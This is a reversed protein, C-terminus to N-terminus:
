PDQGEGAKRPPTAAKLKESAPHLVYIGRLLHEVIDLLINLDEKSPNHGRHASASGVDVAIELIARERDGIHGKDQLRKLKEGFGGIDGVLDVCLTDIVARLGMSPLARMNASLAGYVEDLLDRFKPPVEDYWTPKGRQVM